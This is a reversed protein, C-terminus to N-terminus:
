DTRDTFVLVINGFPILNIHVCLAFSLKLYLLETFVASLHLKM